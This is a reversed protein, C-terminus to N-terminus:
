RQRSSIKMTGFTNLGNLNSQLYVWIKVYKGSINHMIFGRVLHTLPVTVLALYVVALVTFELFFSEMWTAVVNLLANQRIKLCM